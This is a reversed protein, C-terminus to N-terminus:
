VITDISINNISSKWVSIKYPENESNKNMPTEILAIKYKLYLFGSAGLGILTIWKTKM